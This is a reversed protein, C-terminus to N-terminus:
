LPMALYVNLMRKKYFEPFRVSLPSMNRIFNKNRLLDKNSSLTKEYEFQNGKLSYNRKLTGRSFNEKKHDKGRFVPGM